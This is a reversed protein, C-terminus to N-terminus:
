ERHNAIVAGVVVVFLLTLLVAGVVWGGGTSPATAYYPPPAYTTTPYYYSHRTMLRAVMYADDLADYDYWSSGVYYGYGRHGSDYVVTYHHNNM